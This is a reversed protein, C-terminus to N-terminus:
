TPPPEESAILFNSLKGGQKELTANNSTRVGRVLTLLLLVVVVVVVVVGGM